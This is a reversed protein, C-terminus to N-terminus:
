CEIVNAYEGKKDYNELHKMYAIKFKKAKLQSIPISKNNTMIILNQSSLLKKIENLNIVFAVHPVVFNYISLKEAIEKIKGYMHYIEQKTIIDIRRNKLEFYLIESLEFSIYGVTTKLQIKDSRKEIGYYHYWIIYDNLVVDIDQNKFPKIIYAFTHLPLAEAQYKVFSTVFVIQIPKQLESRIKKAIDVGNYEGLDIDLFVCSYVERQCAEFFSEGNNFVDVICELKKKEFFAVITNKIQNCILEEDDCVAIKIM